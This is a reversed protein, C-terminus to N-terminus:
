SFLFPTLLERCFRHLNPLLQVLGLLDRTAIALLDACSVVGPCAKEVAEKAKVVSDFGDGPLSLNVDADREAKNEDTSDLLVSGDCGNVFCDHFFLRLTGAASTPAAKFKAVMATKVISEVDKCSEDYFGLRLEGAAVQAVLLVLSAAVLVVREMSIVWQLLIM